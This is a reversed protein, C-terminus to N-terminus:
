LFSKVEIRTEPDAEPPVWVLVTETRLFNVELRHTLLYVLVSILLHSLNQWFALTTPINHKSSDSSDELFLTTLSSSTPTTM